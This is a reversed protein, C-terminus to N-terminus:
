KLEGERCNCYHLRRPFFRASLIGIAIARREAKSDSCLASISSRGRIPRICTCTAKGSYLLSFQRHTTTKSDQFQIHPPRTSTHHNLNPQTTSKKTPHIQIYQVQTKPTSRHHNRSFNKYVMYVLQLLLFDGGGSFSCFRWHLRLPLSPSRRGRRM